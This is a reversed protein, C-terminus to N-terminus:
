LRFGLSNLEKQTRAPDQFHITHFGLKKAAEINASSDDIFVADAPKFGYRKCIIQYIESDPKIVKEEGSIVLGDFLDFFKFRPRTKAFTEASWNSLAYCTVGQAKLQELIRVTGEIPGPIMEDFRDLWATIDSRHSPHRGTAEAVAEAFSRGRDQELNWEPPCVVTLFHEMKAKDPFLKSYLLRPDWQLLVNGLDFIVIHPQPLQTM